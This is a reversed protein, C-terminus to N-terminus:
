GSLRQELAQILADFDSGQHEDVTLVNMDRLIDTIHAITHRIKAYLDLDERIGQLFEGGVGKMEADLENRKQEWHKIYGLRGHAAYIDADPLVIPFVRE